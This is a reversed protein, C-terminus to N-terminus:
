TVTKTVTSMRGIINQHWANLLKIPVFIFYISSTLRASLWELFYSWAHKCFAKSLTLHCWCRKKGSLVFKCKKELFRFPTFLDELHTAALLDISMKVRSSNGDASCFTVILCFTVCRRQTVATMCDAAVNLIMVIDPDNEGGADNISRGAKM